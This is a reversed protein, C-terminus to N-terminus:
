LPIRPARNEDKYRSFDLQITEVDHIDFPLEEAVLITPKRFSHAVGLEYMVNPSMSNKERSDYIVAIVLDANLLHHAVKEGVMGPNGLEKATSCQWPGGPADKIEPLIAHSYIERLEDILPMCVFCDRM